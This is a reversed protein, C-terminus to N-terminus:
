DQHTQFNALTWNEIQPRVGHAGVVGSNGLKGIEHNDFGFMQAIISGSSTTMGPFELLRGQWTGPQRLQTMRPGCGVRDASGVDGAGLGRVARVLRGLIM